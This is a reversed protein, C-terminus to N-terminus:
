SGFPDDAAKKEAPAAPAAPTAPAGFPDDAPKTAPAAPAGFPDEAPKAAPKAAPPAAFPDDAAPAAAPPNAPMAPKNGEAAPQGAPPAAAAAPATPQGKRLLEYRQSRQSERLRAADVRAQSRFSELQIRTRGQIRELSRGVDYTASGGAAELQAGQRFDQEAEYSRGLFMESLGRFYYVRPDNSGSGIASSLLDYAQFYNNSYYAEVGKGYIQDLAADQARATGAALLWGYCGIWFATRWM